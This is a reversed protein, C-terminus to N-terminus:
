GRNRYVGAAQSHALLSDTQNEKPIVWVPAQDDEAPYPGCIIPSLSDRVVQVDFLEEVGSKFELYAVSRGSVLDVVVVGCRMKSRDACIPVGGFVSTERAKSMGIFAFQGHFCMGRGYGPYDTVTESKGNAPDTTVLKGRGSDLLFLKDQYMRPSHPMCFGRAVVEGSPVDIIVGGDSKTERWGRSENSTGLASVYKPSGDQIWMGNLHCRDQPALEDIFSPRWVPIFNFDEHLKCLCSFLTNVAWLRTLEERKWIGVAVAALVLLLLIRAMWTLAKLM